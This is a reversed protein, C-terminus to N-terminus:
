ELLLRRGCRDKDNVQTSGDNKRDFSAGNYVKAQMCVSRLEDTSYEILGFSLGEGTIFACKEGKRGSHV